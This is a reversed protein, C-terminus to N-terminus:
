YWALCKTLLSLPIPFVSSPPVHICPTNLFYPTLVQLVVLLSPTSHGLGLFLFPFSLLSPCRFFLYTHFLSHFFNLLFLACPPHPHFFWVLLFLHPPFFYSCPWPGPLWIVGGTRHFMDWWCLPTIWPLPIASFPPPVPPVLSFSPPSLTLTFSFLQSFLVIPLTLYGLWYEM